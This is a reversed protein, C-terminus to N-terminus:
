IVHRMKPLGNEEEENPASRTRAKQKGGDENTKTRARAMKLPNRGIFEGYALEASALSEKRSGLTARLRIARGYYMLCAFTCRGIHLAKESVEIQVGLLFPALLPNWLM